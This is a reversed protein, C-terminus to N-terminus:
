PIQPRFTRLRLSNAVVSVSSLAMAAGALAPDLRGLAAVPIMAANYAFAWFLNQRITRYTRRALRIATVVGTLDDRLLTVDSSEIAVDTGSGIAIGIGAQVLAPADNVGDGVMAVTSGAARLRAIERAKDEPLVEALVRGIGVSAAVAEATRRNDGTIMAVTLGLEKLAAVARPAEPRVTDAVALMGHAAGDWGVLFVTLGQREAEEVPLSSPPFLSPRGVTVARGDVVGRAGLGPLNEFSSVPPVDQAAAVVARAIPHSSGAEVAAAYRLTDPDGTVSVLRMAGTTLTGTKDFVVTDVDRSAELVEGGKVLVGLAAGRGTGVMVATPTALGLACPCAIILVAVAAVLARSGDGTAALWGAFTLAAIVLVVPVFVGAIRDALRQIPAKSGQAREVMRVIQALATDRGVRTARVVLLGGANVTAGTVPDGPGKEVPVSEGTLMSEDVASAGEVVEGDTPVKEGPRVVMLDGPRLAAVDVTEERGERRVTAHKAGLELLTAIAASARRKARAEFYRGLLIFAVILASSDFYHEAHGRLLAAVSYFYAALTGIAILTDMNAQRVRARQAAVRLIPWGAVFQVPTTLALAAWGRWTAHVDGVFSLVLVAAALPGAWIVRRFWERQEAEYAASPSSASEVPTVEYGIRHVAARLADVDADGTVVAERSAFNVRADTVGPQRALVKEVRAACSGCTMGEVEFLQETM